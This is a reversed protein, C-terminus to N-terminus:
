PNSIKDRNVSQYSCVGNKAGNEAGSARNKIGFPRYKAM